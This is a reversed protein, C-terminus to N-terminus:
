EEEKIVRAVSAVKDKSGLRIIRVGQAARGTTRIEKVPCRVIMGNHTILMLEDRDSVINLGIVCGNKSTVKINIIGKGGRSQLRYESVPTKKGFGGETVTLLTTKKDRVIEAGVIEDKKGLNMGRVGAASRGMNRVKDEQFKIAKGEKTAIFIEDHGSSLQVSILSDDKDIKLAIIGGKRINSFSSLKTKKIRGMKTVMVLFS